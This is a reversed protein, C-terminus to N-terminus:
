TYGIDELIKGSIGPMKASLDAHGHNQMGVVPFQIEMGMDM